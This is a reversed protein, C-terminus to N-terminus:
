KLLCIVVEDVNKSNSNQNSKYKKHEIKKIIVNGYKEFINVINDITILGENNYSMFIFKSKSKAIKEIEEVITKKSCWKSKLLNDPLGAVSEKEKIIKINPETENVITELLHYNSSYQRSNYPPDMYIIDNENILNLLEICDKNYVEITKDTSNIPLDEVIITNKSISQLKKLFAGYVGTTNSVKHISYIFCYMLYYFQQSTLNNSNYQEYLYKKIGDIKKGNEQSFYLRESGMESYNNYIFGECEQNNLIDFINDPLEPKNNLLGLNIFYSSKLLDNSVINYTSKMNNSVSGTGSFLDYFKNIDANKTYEIIIDNIFTLLKTKNGIYRM